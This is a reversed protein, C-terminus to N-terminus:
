QIDGQLTKTLIRLTMISAIMEVTAGGLADMRAQEVVMRDMTQMLVNGNAIGMEKLMSVARQAAADITANARADQLHNNIMAETNNTPQAVLSDGFRKETSPDFMFTPSTSPSASSQTGLQCDTSLVIHSDIYANLVCLMEMRTLPYEISGAVNLIQAFRQQNQFLDVIRMTSLPIPVTFDYSTLAVYPEGSSKKMTLLTRMDYVFEDGTPFRVSFLYSRAGNFEQETMRFCRPKTDGKGRVPDRSRSLFEHVLSRREALSLPTMVSLM